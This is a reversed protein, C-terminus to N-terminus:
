AAIAMAVPQSWPGVQGKRDAWRAFYTATKGNDARAFAVGIPNRTFAGYFQAADPDAVPDTAVAVFLQLSSAGFPKGRKNPLMSDVYRITQSGPTAGVVNLLPSSAPVTVPTRATNVPRVGIAMKDTDSIGVNFKIQIAYQRCTAIAVRKTDVKTAVALPTRQAPDVADAYGAAYADVVLKITAADASGLQYKNPDASIGESFTQLWALAKADEAPIYSSGM